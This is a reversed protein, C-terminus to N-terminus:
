EIIELSVKQGNKEAAASMLDRIAKITGGGKGILRGIDNRNLSILYTIRGPDQRHDLVVDDPYDVLQRVVYRLFEDM